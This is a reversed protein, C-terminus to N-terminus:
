HRASAELRRMEDLGSGVEGEEEVDSMGTVADGRRRARNALKDGTFTM